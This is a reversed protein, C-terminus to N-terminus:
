PRSVDPFHRNFHEHSQGGAVDSAVSFPLYRSVVAAAVAAATTTTTMTMAVTTKCIWLEHINIMGALSFFTGYVRVDFDRCRDIAVPSTRGPEAASPL